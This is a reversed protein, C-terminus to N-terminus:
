SERNDRRIWSLLGKGAKRRKKKGSPKEQVPEKPNEQPRAEGQQLDSGYKKKYIAMREEMSLGQLKEYPIERSRNAQEERVPRAPQSAAKGGSKKPRHAGPKRGEQRREAPLVAAGRRQPRERRGRKPARTGPSAPSYRLEGSSVKESKDIVGELSDYWNVPIKSGIFKEIAELGFVFQECALAVSVGSKGARATRGIRHVYNEYDEPIDYNVVMELDDIHLGRAAVDTAALFRLNGDKMSDIIKLRKRQPLDGMLFQSQYGNLQLRKAVEVAKHRTNTFILANKPNREEIIHLLLRFKDQKSVHYLEQKIEQVTVREPTIEIASPHNMFEWALHTVRSSLTASFLMTQRKTRDRMKRMMKKIDPYFGMDFLRDAEDVVVIDLSTFDIKNSSQFDILRGPTGIFVDVGKDVASQQKKYGMGGFFSAISIEPIGAALLRADDEIQDALERTPVIVLAKTKGGTEVYRQFITILFAATKGSGTQSQVLVDEGKLSRTFVQEQVSTAETFKAAEIGQMVREDLNLETFKM